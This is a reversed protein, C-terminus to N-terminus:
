RSRALSVFMLSFFCLVVNFLPVQLATPLSYIIAVAPIWVGWTGMLATPLNRAQFNWFRLRRLSKWSFSHDKWYYATIGLPASWFINYVFQDVLVKKFIVSFTVSSGFLHAQLAYFCDVEFGKYAWYLIYFAVHSRPTHARTRPSLVMYASPILGGFLATSAISYPFGLRAKLAALQDLAAHAAPQFYYCLLLGLAFAQLVLGPILNARAAEWGGKVAHRLTEPVNLPFLSRPSEVM